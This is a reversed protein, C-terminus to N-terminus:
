ARKELDAIRKELARIKANAHRSSVAWGLACYALQELGNSKEALKLYARSIKEPNVSTEGRILEQLYALPDSEPDGQLHLGDVVVGDYWIQM